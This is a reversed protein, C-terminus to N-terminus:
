VANTLSSETTHYKAFFISHHKPFIVQLFLLDTNILFFDINEDILKINMEELYVFIQFDSIVEINMFDRISCCHWPVRPSSWSKSLKNPKKEDKAYLFYIM